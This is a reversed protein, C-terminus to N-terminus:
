AVQELRSLLNQLRDIEIGIKEAGFQAVYLVGVPTSQGKAENAVEPQPGHMRDLIAALRTNSGLLADAHNHLRQAHEAMAPQKSPTPASASGYTSATTMNM